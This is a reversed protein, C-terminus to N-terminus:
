FDFGFVIDSFFYSVFEIRKLKEKIPITGM